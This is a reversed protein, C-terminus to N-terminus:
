CAYGRYLIAALIPFNYNGAFNITVLNKIQDPTITPYILRNDKSFNIGKLARERQAMLFQMSLQPVKPVKFDPEPIPKTSMLFNYIFQEDEPTPEM